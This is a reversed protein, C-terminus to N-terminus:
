PIRTRTCARQWERHAQQHPRRRPRRLGPRCVPFPPRITAVQAACPVRRQVLDGPVIEVIELLHPPELGAVEPWEWVEVILGGRQHDFAHEVGRGPTAPVDHREIGRCALHEPQVPQIFALPPRIGNPTHRTTPDGVPGVPLAVLPDEDDGDAILEDREVRRRSSGYGLEAGVADDIEFLM